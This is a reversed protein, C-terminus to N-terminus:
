GMRGRWREIEVVRRHLADTALDRVEDGFVQRCQPLLRRKAGQIGRRRSPKKIGSRRRIWRRKLRDEVLKPLSDNRVVRAFRM